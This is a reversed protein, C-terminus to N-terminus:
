TAAVREAGGNRSAMDTNRTSRGGACPRRVREGRRKPEGPRYKKDDPKPPACPCRVREPGRNRCAMDTNRTSRDGACPCRVREGRRKPEGHRYKKDVPTASMMHTEGTHHTTNGAKSNTHPTKGADPTPHTIKRRGGPQTHTHTHTHTHTYTHTNYIDSTFNLDQRIHTYMHIQIHVICLTYM